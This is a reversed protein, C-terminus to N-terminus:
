KEHAITWSPKTNYQFDRVKELHCSLSQRIIFPSHHFEQPTPEKPPRDSALLRPEHDTPRPEHPTRGYLLPYSNACRRLNKPSSACPKKRVQAAPIKRKPETLRLPEQPQAHLPIKPFSIRLNKALPQLSGRRCPPVVPPPFASTRLVRLRRPPIQPPLEHPSRITTLPCHDTALPRMARAEISPTSSWTQACLHPPFLQYTKPPFPTLPPIIKQKPGIPPSIAACLHSPTKAIAVPSVVSNV